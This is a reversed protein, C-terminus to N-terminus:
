VALWHIPEDDNASVGFVWYLAVSTTRDMWGVKRWRWTPTETCFTPFMGAAGVTLPTLPLGGIGVSYPRKVFALPGTTSGSAPTLIAPEGNEPVKRRSVGQGHATPPKAAWTTIPRTKMPAIYQYPRRPSRLLRGSGSVMAVGGDAGLPVVRRVKSRLTRRARAATTERMM